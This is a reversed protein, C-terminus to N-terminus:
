SLALRSAHVIEDARTWAADSGTPQYQPHTSSASILRRASGLEDAVV